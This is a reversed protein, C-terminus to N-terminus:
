QNTYAFKSLRISQHFYVKPKMFVVLCVKDTTRFWTIKVNDFLV